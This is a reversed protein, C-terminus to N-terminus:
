PPNSYSAGGITGAAGHSFRPEPAFASPGEPCPEVHLVSPCHAVPLEEEPVQPRDTPQYVRMPPMGPPRPTDEARHFFSPPLEKRRADRIALTLMRLQTNLEGTTNVLMRQMRSLDESIDSLTSQISSLIMLFIGVALYEPHQKLQPIDQSFNSAGYWILSAAIALYLLVWFWKGPKFHLKLM